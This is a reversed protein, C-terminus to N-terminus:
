LGGLSRALGDVWASLFDCKQQFGPAATVFGSQDPQRFVHVRFQKEHSAPAHFIFGLAIAELCRM